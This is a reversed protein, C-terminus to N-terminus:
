FHEGRAVEVDSLYVIAAVHRLRETSEELIRYALAETTIV